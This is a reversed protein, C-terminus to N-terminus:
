VPRAAEELEVLLKKGAANTVLFFNIRAGDAGPRAAPYIPQLAFRTKLIETARDVNSTAIEVHQIGRGFRQLYRAVAGKGSPDRATLVELRAGSGFSLHFEQADQEAPVDALAPLNNASRIQAFLEPEAAVGVTFEPSPAAILGGFEADQAWVRALQGIENSAIRFIESAAAERQERRASALASIAAAIASERASM